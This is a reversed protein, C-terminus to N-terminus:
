GAKESDLSDSVMAQVITFTTPVANSYKEGLEEYNSYWTRFQLTNKITQEKVTTITSGLIYFSDVM